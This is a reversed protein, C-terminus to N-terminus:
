VRNITLALDSILFTDLLCIRFIRNLEKLKSVGIKLESIIDMNKWFHLNIKDGNVDFDQHLLNRSKEYGAVSPVGGFYYQRVRLQGNDYWAKREGELRGNQFFEYEEPVGNPHWTKRKGDRVGNRFYESIFLRGGMMGCKINDPAALEMM